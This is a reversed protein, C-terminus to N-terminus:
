VAWSNDEICLIDHHIEGLRMLELRLGTVVAIWGAEILNYSIGMTSWARGDDDRFSVIVSAKAATGKDPELVHVRYDVLKVENVAPYLNSLCQRLATDLADMPGNRAANAAFVGQQVRVAVSATSQTQDPGIMRTTVEFGAIEFPRANPFATERVLLELTGDAAELDYGEIEMQRIRDFLERRAADSLNRSLELSDIKPAIRGAETVAVGYKM